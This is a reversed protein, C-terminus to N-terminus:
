YMLLKCFNHVFAIRICKAFGIKGEYCLSSFFFSPGEFNRSFEAVICLSIIVCLGSITPIYCIKKSATKQDPIRIKFVLLILLTNHSTVHPLIQLKVGM